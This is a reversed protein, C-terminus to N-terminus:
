LRTLFAKSTNKYHTWSKRWQRAQLLLFTSHTELTLCMRLQILQKQRPLRILDVMVYYDDWRLSWERFVQFTADAQLPLPNQPLPVSSSIYPNAVPILAPSNTTVPADTVTADPQSSTAQSSPPVLLQPLAMFRSKKQQETEVGMYPLTPPALRHAFCDQALPMQNPSHVDTVSQVSALLSARASIPTKRVYILNLRTSCNISYFLLCEPTTRLAM